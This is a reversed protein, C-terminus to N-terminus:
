IEKFSHSRIYILVSYSSNGDLAIAFAVCGTVTVVFIPLNGLNGISGTVGRVVMVLIPFWQTGVIRITATLVEAIIMSASQTNQSIGFAVTGGVIVVIVAFW